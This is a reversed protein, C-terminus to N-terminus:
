KIWKEYWENFIVISWILRSYDREWNSDLLEIIYLRLKDSVYPNILNKMNEIIYKKMENRVYYKLPVSFWQKKRYLIDHPLLDELSKKFIYKWESWKLKLRHHIKWSLEIMDHDLIPPRSELSNWLSARDVKTLIDDPLFHMMDMFIVENLPDFKKYYKSYEKFYDVTNFDFYENIQLDTIYKKLYWYIYEQGYLSISFYTWLKKLLWKDFKKFLMSWIKDFFRPYYRIYKFMLYTPYHWYWAFLEDWWDWSLSVTVYERAVKSVLFTPIMSPDGFPEDYHYVLKPIINIISESNFEIVHHNTWFINSVQEAFKSEDFENNDFKISFTNLNTTYKSMIWVVASSDVWWSLFAWVPVDAVMREKVSKELQNFILEKAENEDTITNQFNITWYRSKDVINKEQLDYILYNWAELKYVNKLISKDTPTYNYLFYYNVVFQDIEKEIWSDMIIKLESWFIFKWDKIYYYLPDIWVRDRALLLISKSKDYICFAFQWNLKNLIDKWYEQYWYIIVETDSTSIFRYWKSELDSKIEQFNYIEWNFVIWIDWKSTWMPQKGNESLDLISLRRHWLTVKDDTYVWYQDPWRHKILDWLRKWLIEDSWNFWLIWCM